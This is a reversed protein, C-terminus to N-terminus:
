VRYLECSNLMKFQNGMSNSTMGGIVFIFDYKQDYIATHHFRGRRMNMKEKIRYHEEIDIEFTTPLSKMTHNDQGGLCFIRNERAIITRCFDPIVRSLQTKQLGLTFPNFILAINSGWHLYPVLSQEEKSVQQKIKM